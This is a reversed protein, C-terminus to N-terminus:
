NDKELDLLGLDRLLLDGAGLGTTARINLFRSDQSQNMVNTLHYVDTLSYYEEWEKTGVVDRIYAIDLGYQTLYSRIEDPKAWMLAEVVNYDMRAYVDESLRLLNLDRGLGIPLERLAEVDVPRGSAAYNGQADVEINGLETMDLLNDLETQTWPQISSTSISDNARCASVLLTLTLVSFYIHKAIL